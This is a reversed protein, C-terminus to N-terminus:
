EYEEVDNEFDDDDKAYEYKDDTTIDDLYSEDDVEEMDVIRYKRGYKDYAVMSGPKISMSELLSEDPLETGIIEENDATLCVFELSSDPYRYVCVDAESVESRIYGYPDSNGEYQYSSIVQEGMPQTINFDNVKNGDEDESYANPQVSYGSISQTMFNRSGGNIINRYFKDVANDANEDEKPNLKEEKLRMDQITKKIDVLARITQLKSSDTTNGVELIEAFTKSVGRVSKSRSSVEKVYNNIIKSRAQLDKLVESLMSQEKKFMNDFKDGTNRRRYRGQEMSTIDDIPSLEDFEEMMHEWQEDDIKPIVKDPIVLEPSKIEFESSKYKKDDKKVYEKTKFPKKKGSSELLRAMFGDKDSKMIEYEEQRKMEEFEEDSMVYIRPKNM